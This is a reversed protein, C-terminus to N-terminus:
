GNWLASISTVDTKIGGRAIKQRMRPASFNRTKKKQLPIAERDKIGERGSKENGVCRKLISSIM